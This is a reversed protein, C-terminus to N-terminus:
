KFYTKRTDQQISDNEIKAFNYDVLIKGEKLEISCISPNIESKQECDDMTEEKLFPYLLDEVMTELAKYVTSDDTDLVIQCNVIKNMKRRWFM